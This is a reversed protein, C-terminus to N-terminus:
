IVEHLFWRIAAIIIDNRQLNDKAKPSLLSAQIESAMKKTKNM